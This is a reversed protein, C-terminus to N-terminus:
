LLARRMDALVQGLYTTFRVATAGDIVRHDYSLSLPLMLRAVFTGDHYVPKHAVKSVGLIAVEPANIIPTFATGGIGGLSSVTFCGGQIDDPRLKGDRARQSLQGMERAIQIVGKKDVERLVPVVLGDPTDVAFALHFYKKLILNDGDLSSNFEPFETMAPVLAKLIFALITVRIGDKSHAQNIEQRFAELETVDAEDFQTVHPIMVWNRALNAKSIKRIRSLPKSEIAGFKTFDIKPWQVLGLSAGAGQSGAAPNTFSEKVFKQVDDRFIRGKLGTGKVLSLDVGLQRAFKRVSPSAHPKATSDLPSLSRGSTPRSPSVAPSQPAPTTEAAPAPAKASPPVLTLSPPATSARGDGEPSPAKAESPAPKAEGEAAAADAELVVIPSGESVKDGLKVKIEKVVGAQPAPVEMTAKDSEIAVLPDDVRIHDGPKVMLEIVEVDKFDGIDPIKIDVLTAM